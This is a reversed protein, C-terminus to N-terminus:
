WQDLLHNVRYSAGIGQVKGWIRPVSRTNRAFLSPWFNRGISAAFSLHWARFMEGCLKHRDAIEEQSTNSRNRRRISRRRFISASQIMLRKTAWGHIQNTLSSPEVEEQATEASACDRSECTGTILTQGAQGSWRDLRGSGSFM